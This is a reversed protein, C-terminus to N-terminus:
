SPLPRYITMEAILQTNIKRLIVGREGGMTVLARNGTRRAWACAIEQGRLKIAAISGGFPLLDFGTGERGADPESSGPVRRSPPSVSEAYTAMLEMMETTMTVLTVSSQMSETEGAPMGM